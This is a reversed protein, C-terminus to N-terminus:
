YRRRSASTSSTPTCSNIAKTGAIGSAVTTSTSPVITYCEGNSSCSPCAPVNDGSSAKRGTLRGSAYSFNSENNDNPKSTPMMKNKGYKQYLLYGVVVVGGIMLINKVNKNM